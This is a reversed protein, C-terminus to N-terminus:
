YVVLKRTTVVDESDRLQLIYVGQALGDRTLSISNREDNSLVKVVKGKLDNVVLTYTSNTANNFFVKTENQMPNPGLLVQNDYLFFYNLSLTDSIVTGNSAWIRYSYEADLSFPGGDSFTYPEDQEDNGCVGAFVAIREFDTTPTARQVEMNICFNGAAITWDLAITDEVQQVTFGRFFAQADVTQLTISVLFAFLSFKMKETM